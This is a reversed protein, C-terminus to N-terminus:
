LSNSMENFSHFLVTTDYVYGAKPRGSDWDGNALHQAAAATANIPRTVRNFIIWSIAIGFLSVIIGVLWSEQQSKPLLGLLESESISTGIFW